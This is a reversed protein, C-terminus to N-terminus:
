ELELSTYSQQQSEPESIFARAARAGAGTRAFHGVGAARTKIAHTM